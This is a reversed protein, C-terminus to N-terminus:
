RVMGELFFMIVETDLQSGKQEKIIEMAKEKSIGKRYPRDSTLADFTDAVALIRSELPIDEGKLGDPYGKGDIREHHHRIITAHEKWHEFSSVIDEGIISHKKMIEYEKDTFRGPKNLISEPIGIKGIDHFLAAENLTNLQHDPLGMMSGINRAYEAVRVSHGATYNDKANLSAHLAKISGLQAKEQWMLSKDLHNYLKTIENTQSTITSSAKNIIGILTLYLLTLSLIVSFIIFKYNYVLQKMLISDDIYLEFAGLVKQNDAAFIPVYVELMGSAISTETKQEIKTLDTFEAASEGKLAEALEDGIPFAQNLISKEDSYIVRGRSNWVKVRKIDKNLVNKKFYQDLEMFKAEDIGQAFDNDEFKYRILSNAWAGAYKAAADVLQGKFFYLNGVIIVSGLFLFTILSLVAFRKELTWKSYGM